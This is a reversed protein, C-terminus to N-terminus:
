RWFVDMAPTLIWIWWLGWVDATASILVEKEKLECLRM